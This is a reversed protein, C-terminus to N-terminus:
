MTSRGRELTGVAQRDRTDPMHQQPTACILHVWREGELVFGTNKFFRWHDAPNIVPYLAKRVKECSERSMEM